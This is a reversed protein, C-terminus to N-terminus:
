IKLIATASNGMMGYTQAIGVKAKEVQREGAHGRLQTVIECIQLLGQAAVAEGFSSAGGSPCVPLKGGILTEGEEVLRDAEGPGCFGMTEIYQLYHWSSNDPLEVFDIDEPGIGSQKYAMQCAMYSESLGPASGEEAPCSLYGLRLTPDGYVSSGLGVGAVTVPKSTYQEAKEASCLIVAAAGDRVACIMYLRLPDCIMRSNIVEEETYIKKFTADPNLAGHKSAAVKALALHRETTGFNEMRRRCEIAWYGPNPLGLAKWRLTDLDTSSEKGIIPFFGGPSMDLGVALCIDREGSAVTLYATRFVSTATACMNWINTIPIGTEGMVGAIAAGANFGDTPGWVYMGAVIAQIDHWSLNADKLANRVAGVGLDTVLKDSHIGWPFIGTGLVVVERM